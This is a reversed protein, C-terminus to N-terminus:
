SSPKASTNLRPRSLRGSKRQSIGAEVEIFFGLDLPQIPRSSLPPLCLTIFTGLNITASSNLHLTAKMGVLRCSEIYVRQEHHLIKISINLGNWLLKTM